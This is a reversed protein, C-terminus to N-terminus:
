PKGCHSTIKKTKCFNEAEEQNVKKWGDLPNGITYDRKVIWKKGTPHTKDPALDHWQTCSASNEGDYCSWVYSIHGCDSEVWDYGEKTLDKYLEISGIFFISLVISLLIGTFIPYNILTKKM